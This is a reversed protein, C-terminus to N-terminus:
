TSILIWREIYILMALTLTFLSYILNCLLLLYFVHAAVPVYIKKFDLDAKQMDRRAVLHTKYKDIMGDSNYKIKFVWKCKIAKRESPLLTLTFIKNQWFVTIKNTM